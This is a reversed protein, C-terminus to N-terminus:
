GGKSKGYHRLLLEQQEQEYADFDRELRQSEINYKPKPAARPKGHDYVIGTYNNSMSNSIAEIVAQEGDVAVHNQIEKVLNFLGTEPYAQNKETKYKLWEKIKESLEPSFGSDVSMQCFTSAQNQYGFGFPEIRDMEPPDLPIYVGSPSIGDSEDVDDSVDVGDDIAKKAKTQKESFANAKKAKTQKESFANAKKPRGGQKGAESRAKVTERYKEDYYDLTQRIPAFAIKVTRNEIKPTEETTEYQLIAKLLQGAEEDTLEKVTEAIDTKLIFTEKM